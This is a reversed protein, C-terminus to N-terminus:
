LIKIFKTINSCMSLAGDFTAFNPKITFSTICSYRFANMQKEIEELEKTKKLNEWYGGGKNSRHYFADYKWNSKDVNWIAQPDPRRLIISGWRELKEGNGADICEYNVWEDSIRQM